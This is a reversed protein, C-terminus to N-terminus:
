VGNCVLVQPGWLSQSLVTNSHRRCLYLDTTSQQLSLPEPYLLSPYPRLGRPPTQWKGVISAGSSVCSQSVSEPLACVSLQTSWSFPTTVGCFVSGSKGPLTWSDGTFAHTPPPRSCPQPCQTCCFICPVKQLLDGIVGGCLWWFKCLVLSVSELLACVFSQAFWSGPSLLLSGVLSQALSAWSHRLTEPLPM